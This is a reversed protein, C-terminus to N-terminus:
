SPIRKDCLKPLSFTIQISFTIKGTTQLYGNGQGFPHHQRRKTCPYTQINKFIIKM